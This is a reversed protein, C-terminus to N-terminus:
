KELPCTNTKSEKGVTQVASYNLFSETSFSLIFISYITEPQFGWHQLHCKRSICSSTSNSAFGSIQIMMILATDFPIKRQFLICVYIISFAHVVLIYKIQKDTVDRFSHDDLSNVLIGADQIDSWLLLQLSIEIFFHETCVNIAKSFYLIKGYNILQCFTDFKSNEEMVVILARCLLASM